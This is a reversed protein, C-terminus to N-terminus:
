SKSEEEPPTATDTPQYHTHWDRLSDESINKLTKSIETVSRTIRANAEASTITEHTRLDAMGQIVALRNNILDQLMRQVDNIAAKRTERERRRMIWFVFIHIVSVGGAAFAAFRWPSADEPTLWETVGFIAMIGIFTLVLELNEVSSKM